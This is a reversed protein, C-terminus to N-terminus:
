PLRFVSVQASLSAQFASKDSRAFLLAAGAPDAGAQLVFFGMTGPPMNGSANATAPVPVLGIPFPSAVAGTTALRNYIQRWNRSTFRYRAPVSDRPVGPLSDTYLAVSFDGFLAPFAEGTQQNLNAIGTLGTQELKTLIINGKQDALWRLFLWVAGRETLTGFDVFTTVSSATPASLYDYGNLLNPVIFGQSSDPFLQQPNTRGSPSPYKDEYYRSGLEEAIHSMGENLWTEEDSGGRLIVHQNYSIMHQFEHIFTTPVLRAVQSRPHQCSVSGLSDPVLSYFVEGRNSNPGSSALDFGYFYGTVFGKTQCDAAKTLKNILPTLLIVVRGNLDIDSPPGFTTSDIQFMTQDFLNGFAQLESPSFGPPSLTDV